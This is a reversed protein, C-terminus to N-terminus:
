FSSGPQQLFLAEEPTSARQLSDNRHPFRGFRAIIDRHRLAFRLYGEFVKAEDQAAQKVLAAFLQVSRDQLESSEAHELPLYFFVREIPRLASDMGHELGHVCYRQAAADFSFADAQGRYMSRPFQDTLVILALLSGPETMWGDLEGRGAAHVGEEFQERIMRDSEPQKSWWLGSQARSTLLDSRHHGFWFAHIADPTPLRM